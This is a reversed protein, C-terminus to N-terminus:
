GGLALLVIGVALFVLGIIKMVFHKEKFYLNGSLVAWLIASSRKAAFIVSAPAFLMAFSEVGASIGNAVSQLLFIPRRLFRLPNERAFFKAGVYFYIILAIFIILQEAVVSNFHTLHYKYLSITAVANIATFLVMGAGKRGFGHNAFLMALTVLIVAIGIFQYMGISYRLAVDVGLLLPVTSTRIFGFTSRDARVIARVTVHAQAVELIMRTLFTLWSAWSFKFAGPVFIAIGLFALTVWFLNLFGLTYISEERAGVKKKGILVGTEEFFTGVSALIVGFM